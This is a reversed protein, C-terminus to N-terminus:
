LEEEGVRDEGVLVGSVMGNMAFIVCMADAIVLMVGLPERLSVESPVTTWCPDKHRRGGSSRLPIMLRQPGVDVDASSTRYERAEDVTQAARQWSSSTAM